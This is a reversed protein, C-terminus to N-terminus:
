CVCFENGEPDAMVVAYHDVGPESLVRLTTAGAKLLREVALDTREKRVELEFARGGSAMLDLHLRNKITKAEPVQQFWIRPGHGTPDVIRDSGDGEGLEEDSIGKSHWYKRWTDFGDPPPQVEYGLAPAWFAVLRAPDRCDITLQFNSGM